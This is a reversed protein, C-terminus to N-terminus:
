PSSVINLPRSRNLSIRGIIICCASVIVTLVTSEIITAVVPSAATEPTDSTPANSASSMIAYEDSTVPPATATEWASPCDSLSNPRTQAFCSKYAAVPIASM